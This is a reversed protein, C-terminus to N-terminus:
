VKQFGISEEQSKDCNSLLEFVVVFQKSNNELILEDTIIQDSTGLAISPYLSCIAKNSADRLAGLVLRM